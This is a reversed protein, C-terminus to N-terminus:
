RDICQASQSRLPTHHHIATTIRHRTRRHFKLILKKYAFLAKVTAPETARTESGPEPGPFRREAKIQTGTCWSQVKLNNLNFQREGKSEPFSM